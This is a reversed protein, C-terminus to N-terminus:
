DEEKRKFLDIDNEQGDSKCLEKLKAKNDSWGKGTFYEVGKHDRVKYLATEKYCTGLYVFDKGEEKAWMLTRYMIWKGLPLHSSVALDFFAYWYHVSGGHIGLLVYGLIKESNSFTLIHTANERRLVYDLRERSMSGGVFREHAYSLCFNRFGEDNMDFQALATCQIEVRSYADMKGVVRRNESSDSFCVLRVRLSRCLYFIEEQQNPDSSYPLFGRSYIDEIETSNEAVAYVAYGFTYTTYNSNYESYFIRM